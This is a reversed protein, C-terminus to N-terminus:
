WETCLQDFLYLDGSKYYNLAVLPPPITQLIEKNQEAFVSYTDSAHHEILESLAYSSSPSVAYMLVLVWYYFVAAHEAIFRDVWLQDGGLSEMIQLHHLENRSARRAHFTLTLTLLRSLHPFWRIIPDRKNLLLLRVMRGRLAGQPSRRRRAVMRSVRIPTAHLYILLVADERGDRAGLVAACATRRLARRAGLVVLLVRLPHGPSRCSFCLTLSFHSLALAVLLLVLVVGVAPAEVKGDRAERDKETQAVKSDDLQLTKVRELLERQEDSLKDTMANKPQDLKGLVNEDELYSDLKSLQERLASLMKYSTKRLFSENSDKTADSIEKYENTRISRRLAMLEKKFNSASLEFISRPVAGYSDMYLRGSGSRFGYDASM